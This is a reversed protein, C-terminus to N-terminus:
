GFIFDLLSFDVDFVGSCSESERASSSIKNLQVDVVITSIRSNLTSYVISLGCTIITYLAPKPRKDYVDLQAFQLVKKPQM